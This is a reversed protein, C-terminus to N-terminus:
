ADSVAARLPVARRPSRRARAQPDEHLVVVTENGDGLEAHAVRPRPRAPGALAPVLRGLPGPRGGHPAGGRAAAHRSAGPLPPQTTEILTMAGTEPRWPSEAMPAKRRHMSKKGPAALFDMCAALSGMGFAAGPDMSTCDEPVWRRFADGHVDRDDAGAVHSTADGGSRQGAAVGDRQQAGLRGLRLREGALEGAVHAGAGDAVRDGAVDDHEGDPVLRDVVDEAAVAILEGALRDDVDGVRDVRLGVRREVTSAPEAACSIAALAGPAFTTLANLVVNAPESTSPWTAPSGSSTKTAESSSSALAWTRSSASLAPRRTSSAPGSAIARWSSPARSGACPSGARGRRCRRWRGSSRRRLRRPARRPAETSRPAVACGSATRRRRRASGGSSRGRSTCSTATARRPLRDRRREDRQLAAAAGGGADAPRHDAGQDDAGDRQRARAVAGGPPRRARRRLAARRSPARLRAGLVESFRRYLQLDPDDADRQETRTAEYWREVWLLLASLFHRQLDVSRSDPPRRTEAALLDIAAELRGVDGAPVAVTQVARSGVLWAPNAATAADGHLLEEGFRVVAGHLGRAREFVHVQGRGILTITGPEVASAEGDILHRGTGRGRGSSSTTTTGIPGGRGANRIRGSAPTGFCCSRWRRARRPCGILPSRPTLPESTTSRIGRM